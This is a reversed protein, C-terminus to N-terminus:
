NAAEAQPSDSLEWTVTGQYSGAMNGSPVHLLIGESDKQNLLYKWTGLGNGKTANLITAFQEKNSADATYDVITPTLEPRVNDKGAKVEGNQLQIYAGVLKKSQDQTDVLESQKIRLNWGAGTGRSDTVQINYQGSQALKIDQTTGSLKMDAFDFVVVQDISLPGAQGTTGGTGPDSPDTGPNEEEPKTPDTNDGTVTINVDSSVQKTDQDVSTEAQAIGSLGLLTVGCLLGSIIKKM